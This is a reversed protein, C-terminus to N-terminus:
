PLALNDFSFPVAMSSHPTTVYIVLVADSPIKMSFNMVRVDNMTMSGQNDIKNGSADQLEYSVIKSQPDEIKFVLDNDSVQMFGGFMGGFANAMANAMGKAEAEKKMKEENNKKETDYAAKDMVVFKIGADTLAKATLLKGSQATINPIKIQANPDKSPMFLDLEGNLKALTTAKRSPNKFSLTIKNQQWGGQNFPEFGEKQKQPDIIDRGTDDQAEKVKTNVGKIDSLEDGVLKVEVELGAFFQGTTRTDKIDGVSPTIASCFSPVLLSLALFMTKM